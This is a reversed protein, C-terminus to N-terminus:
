INSKSKEFPSPKSLIPDCRTAISFWAFLLIIFLVGVVPRLPHTNINTSHSDSWVAEFEKDKSDKDKDEDM